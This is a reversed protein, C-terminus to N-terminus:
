YVGNIRMKRTFSISKQYNTISEKIIITNHNIIIIILILKLNDVDNHNEEKEGEYIPESMM